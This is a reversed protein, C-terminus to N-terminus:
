PMELRRLLAPFGAIEPTKTERTTEYARLCDRRRIPVDLNQHTPPFLPPFEHWKLLAHIVWGM